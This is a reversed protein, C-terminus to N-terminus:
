KPHRGSTIDGWCWKNNTELSVISSVQSRTIQPNWEICEAVDEGFYWCFMRVNCRNAVDFRVKISTGSFLPVGLDDMKIPNEMIFWGNQPVVIEVWIYEGSFSGSFANEEPVQSARFASRPCSLWGFWGVWGIGTGGGFRGCIAALSKFQLYPFAMNSKYPYKSDHLFFDNSDKHSIQTTNARATQHPKSRNHKNKNAKQHKQMVMMLLIMMVVRMGWGYGWCRCCVVLNYQVLVVGGHSGM